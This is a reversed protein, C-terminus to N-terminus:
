RGRGRGRQWGRDDDEDDGGDRDRGRVRDQDDDDEDEDEDGDDSRDRGNGPRGGDDEDDAGDDEHDECADLDEHTENISAAVTKARVLDSHTTDGDLLTAEILAVAEAYTLTMPPGDDDDPEVRITEDWNVAGSAFNLWAALLQAMARDRMGPGRFWMVDKAEGITSADALESFVSSGANVV